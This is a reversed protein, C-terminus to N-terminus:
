RAQAKLARFQRVFAEADRRSFNEMVDSDEIEVDEFIREGDETTVLLRGGRYEVSRVDAIPIEISHRLVSAVTSRVVNSVWRGIVGHEDADEDADRAIRDLARDTLQLALVDRTLLLTAVNDSTTIFARTERPTRRPGPHANSDDHGNISIRTGHHHHQASAAGAPLLMLASLALVPLKM